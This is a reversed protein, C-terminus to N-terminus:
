FSVEPLGCFSVEQVYPSKIDTHAVSEPNMAQMVFRFHTFPGLYHQIAFIDTTGKTPPLYYNSVDHLKKWTTGDTSAAITWSTANLQGYFSLSYEFVTFAAPLQLQVWEGLLLSTTGTSDTLVTTTTGIYKGQSGYGGDPIWMADNKDFAQHPFFGPSTTSATATYGDTTM